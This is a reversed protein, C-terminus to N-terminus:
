INDEEFEESYKENNCNICIWGEEDKALEDETSLEDCIYCRQYYNNEM